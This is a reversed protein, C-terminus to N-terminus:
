CFRKYKKSSTSYSPSGPCCGGGCKSNPATTTTPTATTTTTTTTKARAALREALGSSNEKDSIYFSARSVDALEEVTLGSAADEVAVIQSSELPIGASAAGALSIAGLTGLGILALRKADRSKRSMEISRITLCIL